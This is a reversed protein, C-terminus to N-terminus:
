SSSGMRAVAPWVPWIHTVLNCQTQNGAARAVGKVTREEMVLCLAESVLIEARGEVQGATLAAQLESVM